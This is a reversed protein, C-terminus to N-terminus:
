YGVPSNGGGIAVLPTHAKSSRMPAQPLLLQAHAAMPSLLPLIPPHPPQPLRAVIRTRTLHKPRRIVNNGGHRACPTDIFRARPSGLFPFAPSCAVLRLELNQVAESNM